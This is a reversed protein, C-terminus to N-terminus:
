SFAKIMQQDGVELAVGVSHQENVIMHVWGSPVFMATGGPQFCELPAMPYLDPDRTDDLWTQTGAKAASDSANRHFSAAPPLLLWRKCGHHLLFVANSHAHFFTGSQRRASACAPREAM